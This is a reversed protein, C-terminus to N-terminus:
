SFMRTSVAVDDSVSQLRVTLVDIASCISNARIAPVQESEGELCTSHDMTLFDPKVAYM